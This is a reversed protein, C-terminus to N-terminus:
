HGYEGRVQVSVAGSAYPAAVWNGFDDKYVYFTQVVDRITGYTNTTVKALAPYVRTGGRIELPVADSPAITRPAGIQLSHWEVTASRYYHEIAQRASGSLGGAAPVAGGTNQAQGAPPAAAPNAAAGAGGGGPRVMRPTAMPQYTLGNACRVTVNDILAPRMYVPKVATVTCNQWKNLLSPDVTVNDGVKIEDAGYNRDDDQAQAPTAAGGWMIALAGLAGIRAARGTM